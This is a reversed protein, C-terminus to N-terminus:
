HRIWYGDIRAEGFNSCNYLDRITWHDICTMHDPTTVILLANPLHEERMMRKKRGMRVHMWGLMTLYKDSTDSRVGTIVNSRIRSRETKSREGIDSLVVEYPMQNAIAIARYVCDMPYDAHGAKSRGGDDYIFKM